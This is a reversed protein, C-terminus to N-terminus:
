AQGDELYTSRGGQAATLAHGLRRGIRAPLLVTAMEPEVFRYSDLEQRALKIRAITDDRLPPAEFIFHLMAVPTHESPRAHDVCLLRGVVLEIGLEEAVERAAADRPSEGPDVSGGPLEWGPKYTPQVIMVRGAEDRIVLAASARFTELQALYAERELM